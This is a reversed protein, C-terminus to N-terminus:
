RKELMLTKNIKGIQFRAIYIGETMEKAQWRLENEGTLRKQSCLTKIRKGQLDYIELSVPLSQPLYFAFRFEDKSPNPSVKLALNALVQEELSIPDGKTVFVKFLRATAFSESENGKFVNRYPTEIGGIMYGVLTKTAPLNNLKLINMDNYYSFNSPIFTANTGLFAPMQEPLLYETVSTATRSIKSITKVFPVLTDEKIIQPNLSDPYFQATGGFFITHMENAASDFIPLHATHYQNYKQQFTNNVNASTAQIDVSNLYPLDKDPRFVGTFATLGKVSTNAGTPFMQPVLNYDRRRFNASDTQASYNALSLNTGNDLIDFKRIQYSYTQTYTPGNTHNYLGQFNHGMVLYYTNDIKHLNGGTIALRVDYIQRFYTVFPQNNMVADIVEQVSVATLKPFTIFDNAQPSWGYGGVFYLYNGAQYYEMNSSQMQVRISDPLTTTPAFWIQQTNPDIVLIQNNQTNTPFSSPPLYGHLGNIRGGIVLWKGNHEAVACSHIGEFDPITFEELSIQFTEAPTQASLSSFLCTFLLMLGMPFHIGKKLGLINKKM